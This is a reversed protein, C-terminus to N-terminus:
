RVELERDGVEFVLVRQSAEDLRKCSVDSSRSETLFSNLKDPVNRIIASVDEAGLGLLLTLSTRSPSAATPFTPQARSENGDITRKGETVQRESGTGASPQHEV